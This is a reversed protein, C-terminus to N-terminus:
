PGASDIVTHATHFSNDYSIYTSDISGVAGPFGRANCIKCRTLFSGFSNEIIKRADVLKQTSM